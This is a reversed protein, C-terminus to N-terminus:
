KEAKSKEEAIKRDIIEATAPITKVEVKGM